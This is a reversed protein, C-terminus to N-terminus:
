SVSPLGRALERKSVYKPFSWFLLRTLIPIDFMSQHNALVLYAQRPNLGAAREVAFHAGTVRLSQMLACQLVGATLEQPRRGFLRALRQLPDFVVLVLAFLLLFLPTLAFSLAALLFAM